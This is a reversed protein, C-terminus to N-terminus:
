LVSYKEGRAQHLRHARATLEVSVFIRKEKTRNKKQIDRTKNLWKLTRSIAIEIDNEARLTSCLFFDSFYCSSMTLWSTKILWTWKWVFIYILLQRNTLSVQCKWLCKQSSNMHNPKRCFLICHKLRINIWIFDRTLYTREYFFWHTWDADTSLIHIM